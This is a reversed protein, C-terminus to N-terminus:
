HSRSLPVSQNITCESFHETKGVVEGCCFPGIPKSHGYRIMTFKHSTDIKTVPGPSGYRHRDYSLTTSSPPINNFSPKLEGCTIPSLCSKGLVKPADHSKLAKHHRVPQGHMWRVPHASPSTCPPCLPPLAHISKEILASRTSLRNNIYNQKQQVWIIWAGEHHQM